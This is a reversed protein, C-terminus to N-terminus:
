KVSNHKLPHISFYDLMKSILHILENSEEEGLFNVLGELIEEVGIILSRAMKKGEDTLSILVFRRDDPDKKRTIFGAVELPNLLHTIASPTVYLQNSLESAAIEKTGSGLNLYLFGLLECESSKLGPIPSQEWKLRRLQGLVQFLDQTLVEMKYPAM